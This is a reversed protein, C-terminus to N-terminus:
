TSRAHYEGEPSDRYTNATRSSNEANKRADIYLKVMTALPVIRTWSTYLKERDSVFVKGLTGSQKGAYEAHIRKGSIEEFMSAIRDTTVPDATVLYRRCAASLAASIILDVAEDIYLITCANGRNLTFSREEFASAYLRSMLHSPHEGCSAISCLRLHAVPWGSRHFLADFYHEAALKAIGYPSDPRPETESSIPGRILPSFVKVSSINIFRALPKDRLWEWLFAPQHINNSVEFSLQDSFSLTRDVVWHFNIVYDPAELTELDTGGCVPRPRNRAKWAVRKPEHPYGPLTLPLVRAGLEELRLVTECGLRGTAGTILFTKGELM